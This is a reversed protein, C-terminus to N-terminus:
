KIHNKKKKHSRLSRIVSVRGAHLATIRNRERHIREHSKLNGSHSFRKDCHSCKYPKEGTHIRQHQKLQDASIFTKECEILACIRECWHTDESTSKFEAATFFEKWMFFHIHNRRQIFKWTSRWTQLVCLNKEVNIVNMRNRELTSRWTVRFTHHDHSVRGASIVHSRNREHPHEHTEQSETQKHFETWVSHLHFKEQRKKETFFVKLRHHNKKELKSMINTEGGNPRFNFNFPLFIILDHSTFASLLQVLNHDNRCM